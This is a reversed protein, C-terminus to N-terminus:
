FSFKFGGTNADSASEWFTLQKEEAMKEEAKKMLEDILGPFSSEVACRFKEYLNVRDATGSVLEKANPRRLFDLM